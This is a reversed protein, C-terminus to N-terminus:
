QPRRRRPGLMIPAMGLLALVSPTPIVDGSIVINDVRSTGATASAAVAATLRFYVITQNNLAAPGDEPGFMSTVLPPGSSSWTDNPVAYDNLLTTFDTGDTSWQLDFTTPGTSSRTQDWSISINQFGSTSTTFQYYDGVAWFNSSFSEMSGNGVPNSYVVSTSVHFGTAFSTAANIGAEAAHPGATTPVSVEFTWNALIDGNVPCACAWSLTLAGVTGATKRSIM